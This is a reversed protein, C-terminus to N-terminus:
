TLKTYIIAWNKTQLKDVQFFLSPKGGESRVFLERPLVILREVKLGPDWFSVTYYEEDITMPSGETSREIRKQNVLAIQVNEVDPPVEIAVGIRQTGNEVESLKKYVGRIRQGRIFWSFETWVPAEYEHSEVPTSM